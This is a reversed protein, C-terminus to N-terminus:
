TVGKRRVLLLKRTRRPAKSRGFVRAIAFLLLVLMILVLGGTWARLIENHIPERILRYVFLPLDDQQGKFPNWNVKNSSGVDLLAPATEGVVRAVGLIVSTVIGAKATPLLVSRVMRWEQGGLALSAERLGGPVLRLVVECARTVTPLMSISLALSVAFGSAPQHLGSPLIWIAFIFLGALISPIGNMAEVFIRVVRGLVGRIESMFVATAVGLPVSIAMALGVQEISGVIAALGGGATSSSLPGTHRLDNTFFSPRLSSYGRYAVYGLIVVLAGVVVLALGAIVAAVFRDRAAIKGHRQHQLVWYLLLFVAYWSVAFGLGGSLSTLQEYFLWTLSLSGVGAGLVEAIDTGDWARLRIREIQDEPEEPDSEPASPPTSNVLTV